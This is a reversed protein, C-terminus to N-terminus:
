KRTQAAKKGRDPTLSARAYRWPYAASSGEKDQAVATMKDNAAKIATDMNM